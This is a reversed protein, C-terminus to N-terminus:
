RVRRGNQDIIIVKPEKPQMSQYFGEQQQRFGGIANGMDIYAQNADRQTKYWFMREEFPMARLANVERVYTDVCEQGQFMCNFEAGEYGPPITACSTLAGILGFGLIMKFSRM